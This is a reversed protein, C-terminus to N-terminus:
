ANGLRNSLANSAASRIGLRFSRSLRKLVDISETGTHHKLANIIMASDKKHLGSGFLSGNAIWESLQAPASAGGNAAYLEYFRKRMEDTFFDFEESEIIACFLEAAKEGTLSLALDFARTRIEDDQDQIAIKLAGGINGDRNTECGEIAELRVRKDAHHFAKELHKQARESNTRSLIMTTNRVVYWRKDYLGSAILDVHEEGAGVLYNCIAMRHERVEMTGLTEILAVYATWDFSELYRSLEDAPLEPHANLAESLRGLQERSSIAALSENARQSWIQRNDKYRERSERVQQIIGAAATLKGNKVLERHSKQCVALAEAFDTMDGQQTLLDECLHIVESELSFNEDDLLALEANRDDDATLNHVTRIFQEASPLEAHETTEPDNNLLDVANSFRRDREKDAEEQEPTAGIFIRKYADESSEDEDTIDDFFEQKLEPGYEVLALDEVSEYQIGALREEWLATAMDATQNESNIVSRVIEMFRRISEDSINATFLFESIGSEFAARIFPNETMPAPCVLEHSQTFGQRSIELRLDRYRSLYATLKGTITDLAKDALTNGSPYLCITKTARLLEHAIAEVEVPDPTSIERHLSDSDSLNHQRIQM